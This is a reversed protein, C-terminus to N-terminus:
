EGQGTSAAQKMETWAVGIDAATVPYGLIKEVAKAKPTGVATFDASDDKRRLEDLAMKLMEARTEDDDPAKLDPPVEVFDVEEGEDAPTAGAAIADRHLAQPVLTPAGKAFAITHGKTTVLTFDRNMVFKM